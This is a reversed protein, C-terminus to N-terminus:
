RTEIRRRLRSWEREKITERKDIQRRGKAIGIEVKLLRGKNYVRLPMLTLGKEKIRGTLTKIQAASLLLRRTRKSDYGAPTNAPQYPPVDANVLWAQNNKIVIFSGGLSIHGTKVAKVEHGKLEIGAETTELIRYDFRARRNEAFVKM